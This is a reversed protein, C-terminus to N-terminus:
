QTEKDAKKEAHIHDIMERCSRRIIQLDGATKREITELCKRLTTEILDLHEKVFDNLASLEVEQESTSPPIHGALALAVYMIIKGARLEEDVEPQAFLTEMFDRLELAFQESEAFRKGAETVEM